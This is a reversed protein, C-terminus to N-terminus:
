RADPFQREWERGNCAVVRMGTVTGEDLCRANVSYGDPHSRPVYFSKIGCVPCFLHRATGTNFTYARLTDAGRLLKFQAAPVILHLFGTKSCISCNCDLVEIGAPAQVEFRVAGCHCGGRHTISDATQSM